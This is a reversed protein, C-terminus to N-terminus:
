PVLLVPRQSRSMVVSCVGGGLLIGLGHDRGGMVILDASAREAELVIMGAVDNSSVLRRWVRAGAATPSQRVREEAARLVVEAQEVVEEPLKERNLHWPRDLNSELNVPALQPYVYFLEIEPDQGDAM